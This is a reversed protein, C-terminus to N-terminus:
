ASGAIALERIDPLRELRMIQAALHAAETTSLVTTACALFKDTIEDVTNLRRRPHAGSAMSSGDRLALVVGEVTPDHKVRAMLSRVRRDYVCDDQLLDLDFRGHVLTAALLFRGSFGAEMANDPVERLLSFPHLDATVLEVEDLNPRHRDYLSIAADLVHHIPTCAPFPKIRLPRTLEFPVTGAVLPSWDCEGPQCLAAALGLPAELIASDASFGTSALLAAEIGKGAANGSHLAKAMTGMNARQGGASCTAIGIAATAAHADLGLLKAAAAASAIPGVLGVHWWGRSTPGRGNVRESDLAATLRAGVERGVVYAELIQRGSAGLHEGLALAAPLVHTALHSGEDFDLANALTGNVLAATTVSATRGTGIIRAPGTGPDIVQVLEDMRDAIPYRLAALAVGITDLITLRAGNEVEAPVRDLTTDAIFRGAALTPSSQDTRM